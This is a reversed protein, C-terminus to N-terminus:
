QTEGIMREIRERMEILAVRHPKVYDAPMVSLMDVARWATNAREEALNRLAQTLNAQQQQLDPEDLWKPPKARNRAFINPDNM